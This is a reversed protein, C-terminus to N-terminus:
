GLLPAIDRAFGQWGGDYVREVYRMVTADPVAPDTGLERMWERAERMTTTTATTTTTM